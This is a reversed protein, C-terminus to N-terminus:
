WSRCCAIISRTFFRMPNCTSSRSLNHASSLFKAALADSDLASWGVFTHPTNKLSLKLFNKKQASWAKMYSIEYVKFKMVQWTLTFNLTFKNSSACWDTLKLKRPRRLCKLSSEIRGEFHTTSEFLSWSHFIKIKSVKLVITSKLGNPAQVRCLCSSFYARFYLGTKKLVLLSDLPPFPSALATSSFFLFAASFFISTSFTALSSNSNNTPPLCRALTLDSWVIHPINQGCDSVKRGWCQLHTIKWWKQSSYCM